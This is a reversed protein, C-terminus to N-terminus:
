SGVSLSRPQQEAVREPIARYARCRHVVRARGPCGRHRGRPPGGPRVGGARDPRAGDRRPHPRERVAQNPLRRTEPLCVAEDGHPEQHVTGARRPIAGLAPGDDSVAGRHAGHHPVLRRGISLRHRLPRCKRPRPESGADGRRCVHRRLLDGAHAAPIAPARSRAAGRRGGPPRTGRLLLFVNGRPGHRGEERPCRM